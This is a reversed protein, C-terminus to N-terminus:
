SKDNSKLFLSLLLVDHLILSWTQSVPIDTEKETSCSFNHSVKHRLSPFFVTDFHLIPSSRCMKQCHSIHVPPVNANYERRRRCALTSWFSVAADSLSVVCELPWTCSLTWERSLFELVVWIIKNITTISPVQRTMPSPMRVGAMDPLFM